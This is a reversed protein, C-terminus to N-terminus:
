ADGEKICEKIRNTAVEFYKEDKEIGIYKRNTNICAVCTSGSGMCNDLIIMNENTYTKILYELMSVPKQTPHLQKRTFNNDFYQIRKPYRMGDDVQYFSKQEGYNDSQQINKDKDRIVKGRKYVKQAVTKQPNYICQKEYFVSITENDNLPQKKANLFGTSKNKQWIWNYKFDEINSCILMSTFPESGFLVVARNNKIIRKYQKWLDDFSIISDWKNQTTGYPLDCLIMDISKDPIDKMVELCDDNFCMGYKDKYPAINYLEKITM